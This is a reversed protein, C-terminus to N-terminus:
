ATHARQARLDALETNIRQRRENQRANAAKRRDHERQQELKRHHAEICPGCPETNEYRHLKYGRYTGHSPNKVGDRVPRRAQNNRYAIENSYMGGWVGETEGNAAAWERCAKTHPCTNCIAIAKAERRRKTEPRENYAPFFLDLKGACAATASWEPKM